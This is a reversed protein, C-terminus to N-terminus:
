ELLRALHEDARAPQDFWYERVLPAIETEIVARYWTDDRKEEDSSPVFYSHGIEFGPGLNRRDARIAENLAGMRTNIRKVVDSPVDQQLLYDSFRESGFSPELDIFGFRRRLAYDVMALSRDATNMLGVLHVNEPVYFTESGSYTLPIAYDRGRKDNEILMMLEGFIRSLNGRNIEDIIFVFPEGSEDQAARNCFQRFVGDQLVFGGRENPRWGQVFDEYSYSQHFQVMQLREPEKRGILAFALRRAMFTKGVGPPGQLIVNRRRGLSDLIATFEEPAIFLGELAQRHSYTGDPRARQKAAGGGGMLELAWKTWAPYQRFETLTKTSIGKQDGGLEWQGTVKWEVSRIHQYESREPDYTYEGTVTGWGFLRSRGQKAIIVDGINMGKAFQWAALSDNLPNDRDEKEAIAAHVDQRSTFEALDGLSQLDLAIVGNERFDRWLRGGGGTAALWVRSDGFESKLWEEAEAENPWSTVVEGGAPPPSAPQWQTRINGRYFDISQSDESLDRALRERVRLVERDVAVRDAYNFDRTDEGWQKRFEKIVKQKHSFTAMREFQDPFLLFLLIHRFQRGGAHQRADIWSAFDWPSQVLELRRERPLKKWDVMMTIFFLLEKWRLTNYATGPHSIGQELLEGLRPHDESLEDGSWNWVQLIQYRKTEAGMAGESVILYMVWFMEAALKKAQASAPGLQAELKAFFDGSGFDLRQVFYKDLEALNQSTWLREDSLVSLDEVLCRDRWQEAAQLIPEAGPLRGM